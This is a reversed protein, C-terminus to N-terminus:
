RGSLERGVFRLFEEHATARCSRSVPVQEGTTLTAETKSLEEIYGMNVVFSKHCQVFCDPLQGVLDSLKGRTEIVDDGVHLLLKRSSSEAFRLRRPSVARVSLLSHVLIPRDAYEDLNALATGMAEELQDQRVPKLLFWMHNARYADSHYTDFGTVFIVQLPSRAPVSRRVLEIGDTQSGEIRIDMLLIDVEDAALLARLRPLDCVVECSLEDARSLRSVKALLELAQAEDDDFIVLKRSM